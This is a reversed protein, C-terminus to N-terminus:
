FIYAFSSRVFIGLNIRRLLFLVNQRAIKLLIYWSALPPPPPPLEDKSVDSDGFDYKPNIQAYTAHYGNRIINLM